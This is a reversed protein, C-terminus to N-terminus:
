LYNGHVNLINDIKLKLEKKNRRLLCRNKRNIDMYYLFLSKDKLIKIVTNYDNLLLQSIIIRDIYKNNEIIFNIKKLCYANEEQLLLDIMKFPEKVFVCIFFIIKYNINNMAEEYNKYKKLSNIIWKSDNIEYTINSKFFHKMKKQYYKNEKKLQPLYQKKIEKKIKSYKLEKLSKTNIISYKILSLKKLIIYLAPHEKKVCLLYKITLIKKLWDRYCNPIKDFFLKIHCINMCIFNNLMYVQQYNLISSKNNIVDLIDTDNIFILELDILLKLTSILDYNRIAFYLTLYKNINFNNIIEYNTLNFNFREIYNRYYFHYNIAYFNENDYFDYIMKKINTNLSKKLL